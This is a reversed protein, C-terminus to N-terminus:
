IMSLIKAFFENESISSFTAATTTKKPNKLGLLQKIFWTKLALQEYVPQKISCFLTSLKFVVWKIFSSSSLVSHPCNSAIRHRRVEPSLDLAILNQQGLRCIHDGRHSGLKCSRGARLKRQSSAVTYISQFAQCVQREGFSYGNSRLSSTLM